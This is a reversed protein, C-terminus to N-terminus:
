RNWPGGPLARSLSTQIGMVQSVLRPGNAHGVGRHLCPVGSAFEAAAPPRRLKASSKVLANTDPLQLRSATQRLKNALADLDTAV